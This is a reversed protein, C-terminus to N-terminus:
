RTRLSDIYRAETKGLARRALGSALGPKETVRRSGGTFGMLEGPDRKGWTGPNNVGKLDEKNFLLYNYNKGPISGIDKYRMGGHGMAHIRDSMVNESSNVWKTLEDPSANIEADDFLQLMSAYVRGNQMNPNTKRLLALRETEEPTPFGHRLRDWDAPSDFDFLDKASSIMPYVQPAKGARQGIAYGSAIKPNDTTYIGYGYAGEPSPRLHTYDDAAGHYVFLPNGDYDVVDSGKMYEDLNARNWSGKPNRKLLTELPVGQGHAPREYMKAVTPRAVATAIDSGGAVLSQKWNIPDGNLAQSGADAGGISAARVLAKALGEGRTLKSVTSAVGEGIVNMPDKVSDMIIDSLEGGNSTPRALGEVIADRASLGDMPALVGGAAAVLGRGPLSAADKLANWLYAKKTTDQSASVRPFIMEGVSLNGRDAALGALYESSKKDAM